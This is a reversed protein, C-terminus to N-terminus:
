APSFGPTLDTQCFVSGCRTIISQPLYCALWSQQIIDKSKLLFILVNITQHQIKAGHKVKSDFMFIQLIPELRISLM